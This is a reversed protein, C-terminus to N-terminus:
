GIRSAKLLRQLDKRTHSPDPDKPFRMMLNHLPDIVYIHDALTTGEEVPFLADIDAKNVRWVWLDPHATLIAPPLPTPDTVLLVRAVRDREKGLSAHTQRMFYLKEACPLACEGHDVALMIWHGKLGALGAGPAAGTGTAGAALAEAPAHILEAAVPPVPRQPEILAGYNTRESPPFVYYALYSAIVPAVCVLILLDLKWHRRGAQPQAQPRGTEAVM